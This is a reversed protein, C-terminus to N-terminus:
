QLDKRDHDGWVSEEEDAPELAPHSGKGLEWPPKHRTTQEKRMAAVKDFRSQNTLRLKTSLSAVTSSLSLKLRLLTNFKDFQDPSMDAPSCQARLQKIQDAIDRSTCITRVLELLVPQVEAPFWDPPM